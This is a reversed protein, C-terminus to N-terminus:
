PRTSYARNKSSASFTASQRMSWLSRPSTPKASPANKPPRITTATSTARTPQSLRNAADPSPIPSTPTPTYDPRRSRLTGRRIGHINRLESHGRAALFQLYADEEVSRPLEEMLHTEQYGHPETPPYFHGKGILATHYGHDSFVRPLTPLNPDRIPAHANQFYGHLHAPAGTLLCHRAPVCIPNPSYARTFTCDERVLRDLNPTIMHPYGAAAITDFRQQDTLLILINPPRPTGNTSATYQM